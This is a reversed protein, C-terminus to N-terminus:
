ARVGTKGLYQGLRHALAAVTLTPNAAAGSSFSGMGCVFVNDIDHLQLNEDVVGDVPSASMRTTGMCHANIYSSLRVDTFGIKEALTRISEGIEATRRKTADDHEYHIRARSTGFRTSGASLTVRNTQNPFEEFYCTLNCGRRLKPAWFLMRKGRSQEKESDFFRSAATPDIPTRGLLSRGPLRGNAVVAPHSVLYRGLHRAGSGLGEPWRQDASALLLITSEIGSCCIAFSSAAVSNQENTICNTFQLADIRNKKGLVMKKAASDTLLRFNPTKELADLITDATFPRGDIAQARSHHMPTIGLQKLAAIFPEDREHYSPPDLPFVQSMWPHDVHDNDGCVRLTREAECYYPEVQEYSIPWDMGKGTASALRFDEPKFRYAYAGWGLTSGGRLVLAKKRLDYGPIGSSDFDSARYRSGRHIVMRAVRYDGMAWEAARVALGMKARRGAELMLVSKGARLCEQAVIAGAIGSGVVCVDAEYRM